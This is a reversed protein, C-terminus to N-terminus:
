FLAESIRHVLIPSKRSVAATLTQVIQEAKELTM